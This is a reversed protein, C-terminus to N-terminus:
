KFALNWSKFAFLFQPALNPISLRWLIRSAPHGFYGNPIVPNLWFKLPIAPNFKLFGISIIIIIIIIIIVIIIIIIVIIIITIIIIIIIIILINSTLLCFYM